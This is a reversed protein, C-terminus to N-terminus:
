NVVIIKFVRNKSGAEVVLVYMGDRINKTSFEILTINSPLEERNAVIKGSVDYLNVQVSNSVSQEVYLSIKDSVLNLRVSISDIPVYSETTDNCPFYSGTLSEEGTQLPDLWVDLRKSSDVQSNWSYSLKGYYDPDEPKNCYSTGVSLAGVILKEHNFVPAGSSGSETVGHGNITEAWTVEWFADETLGQNATLLKTAYTSIKKVGGKPHHISVGSSFISESKDWGNFFPNYDLPITEDLELLLFDSGNLFSSSARFSMGLLFNNSNSSELGCQFNEFNFYAFSQKLNNASVNELCHDASLIYPICDRATNNILTGSCYVSSSNTKLLLRVIGNKQKDWQNGESCNVDVECFGSTAIADFSRLFFGIEGILIKSETKDGKFVFKLLSGTYPQIAYLGGKPNSHSNITTLLEESDNYVELTSNKNIKLFDFYVNLRKADQVQVILEYAEEGNSAILSAEEFFDIGADILLAAIEAQSNARDILNSDPKQYILQGNGISYFSVSVIFIFNKLRNKLFITPM